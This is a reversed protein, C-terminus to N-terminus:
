GREESAFRTGRKPVCRLFGPGRTDHNDKRRERDRVLCFDYLV